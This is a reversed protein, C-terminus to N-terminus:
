KTGLHNNGFTQYSKLLATAMRNAPTPIGHKEGIRVIAGNRADIEMPRGALRDAVLSNLSDPPYGKYATLVEEGISPSLHAGEARGVAACENILDLAVRALNPDALVGAPQLLLASIAGASNICLKRWAATTFHSSVDILSPSETFLDAFSQGQPNSEVTMLVAGRQHVLSGDPHSSPREAPCDIIIPVIKAPDISALRAPDAATLRERHEVGNQIIAILTKAHSLKEVWPLAAATDYAKTAILIWDVPETGADNPSTFNKAKIQILKDDPTKVTLHPLPRRTCLTLEHRGTQQLQGALTGGISGAGIIAVKSM